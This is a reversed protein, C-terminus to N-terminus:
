QSLQLQLMQQSYASNSLAKCSFSLALSDRSQGVKASVVVVSKEREKERERERERERETERRAIRAGNRIPTTRWRITRTIRCTSIERACTAHM